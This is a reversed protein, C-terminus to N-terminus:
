GGVLKFALDACIARERVRYVLYSSLYSEYHYSEGGMLRTTTTYLHANISLPVYKGVRCILPSSFRYM